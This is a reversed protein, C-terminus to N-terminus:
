EYAHDRGRILNTGWPKIPDSPVRLIMSRTNVALGAALGALDDRLGSALLGAGAHKQFKV